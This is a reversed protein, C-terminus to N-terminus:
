PLCSLTSFARLVFGFLLSVRKAYSHLFELPAHAICVSLGLFPVQSQTLGFRQLTGLDVGAVLLLPQNSDSDVLVAPGDMRNHFRGKWTWLSVGNSLM